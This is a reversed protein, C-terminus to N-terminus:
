MYIIVSFSLAWLAVCSQLFRDTLAIRTPSGSDEVVLAVQLYRLLGALVFVSTLYVYPTGFQRITGPAICYMLYCVMIVAGLIALVQNLFPINYNISSRRPNRGTRGAIVLDDRRKAFAMMLSLLFVMIVIWPSLAIGCSVGGMALRLVFGSSVMMVDLLSVRKLGFCYLLNILLYSAIIVPPWIGPIMVAAAVAAVGLLISLTYAATLGVRGSAVPRSCKVPHKRDSEADIADNLCYVSSAALCFSLFAALSMLWCRPDLLMGGFFMPLFVVGNKVWQAPRVLRLLDRMM